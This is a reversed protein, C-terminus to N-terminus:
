SILTKMSAPDLFHQLSGLFQALVLNLMIITLFSAV